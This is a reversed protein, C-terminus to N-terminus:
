FRFIVRLLHSQPQPFPPFFQVKRLISLLLLQCFPIQFSLSLPPPSPSILNAHTGWGGNREVREELFSLVILEKNIVCSWFSGVVFPSTRVVVTNNM